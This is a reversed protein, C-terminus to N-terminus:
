MPKWAVYFQLVSFSEYFKNQEKVFLEELNHQDIQLTFCM